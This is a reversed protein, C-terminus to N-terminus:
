LHKDLSKEFSLMLTGIVILAIGSWGVVNIKNGFYIVGILPVIIASMADWYVEAKGM